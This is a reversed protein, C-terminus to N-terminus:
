KPAYVERTWLFNSPTRSVKRFSVLFLYLSPPIYRDELILNVFRLVIHFTAKVM